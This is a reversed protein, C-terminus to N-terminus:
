FRLRLEVRYQAASDRRGILWDRGQQQLDRDHPTRDLLREWVLSWTLNDEHGTLWDRGQQWLASGRLPTALLRLWVLGWAPSGQHWKLWDLGQQQLDIDHSNKDLLYRWVLTWGPKDERGILWDRGQMHLSRDHPTKKILHNWVLTWGPKDEHGILWDRGRQFDREDAYKGALQLWVFSWSPKDERGILWNRGIPILKGMGYFSRNRKVYELITEYVYMWGPSDMSQELGAIVPDIGVESLRSIILKIGLTTIYPIRSTCLRQTLSQIFTDPAPGLSEIKPWLYKDAVTLPSNLLGDIGNSLMWDERLGSNYINQFIYSWGKNNSHESLWQRAFEKLRKDMTRYTWAIQWVRDWVSLDKNAELWKIIEEFLADREEQPVYEWLAVCLEGWEESGLESSAIWKRILAPAFVKDVSLGRKLSADRWQILYRANPLNSQKLVEGIKKLVEKVLEEPIRNQKENGLLQLFSTIRNPKDYIAAFYCSLHDARIENSNLPVIFNYIKKALAPHLSIVSDEENPIEVLQFLGEGVLQNIADQKGEFLKTTAEIGLMNVALTILFDDRLGHTALRQQLRATFEGIDADGKCERELIFAAVVFNAEKLPKVERQTRAAYWSRYREQEVESLPPVEVRIVHMTGQSQAYQEFAERYDDPGCTLITVFPVEYSLRSVQSWLSSDRYSPAYLDDVAILSPVGQQGWYTLVGPLQDPFHRLYNVPTDNETVLRRLTQLLLASKGVGSGGSIWIIPLKRSTTVEPDYSVVSNLEDLVKNVLADREIFCGSNLDNISPREGVLIRTQEESKDQFASPNLLIGPAPTTIKNDQWRKLLDESIKDSTEYSALRQLLAGKSAAVFEFPKSVKGWLKIVLELTPDGQIIYPLIQSRVRAWRAARDPDLGLEEASLDQRVNGKTAKCAIQYRINSRIDIHVDELFADVALIERTADKFIETTLTAKVQTLYVLSGRLEALDSLGEFALVASPDNNLIGDFFRNLSLSIQYNFGMLAHRGGLPRQGAPKYNLWDEELQKLSLAM